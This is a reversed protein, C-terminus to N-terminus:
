RWIIYFSDYKPIFFRVCKTIIYSDCEAIIDAKNQLLTDYHVLYSFRVLTQIGVTARTAIVINGM